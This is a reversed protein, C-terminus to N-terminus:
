YFTYLVRWTAFGAQRGVAQRCSYSSQNTCITLFTM